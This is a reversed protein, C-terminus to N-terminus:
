ADEPEALLEGLTHKRLFAWRDSGRLVIRRVDRRGAVVLTVDKHGSAFARTCVADVTRDCAALAELWADWDEHSAARLLSDDYFLVNGAPMLADVRPDLLASPAVGAALAWGRVIADDTVIADFPRKPLPQWAGGGHLWLGNITPRGSSDRRENIPHQHWDMQIETLLKRWRAADAGAPLVIDVSRGLAADLAVTAISWPPDFSLFWNTTAIVRLTAGFGTALTAADAALTTSEEPTISFDGHLPTVLMHDRAFAFHVPDAHWLPTETDVDTASARNLARWAYPASVPEATGGFERWLWHRHAAGDPAVRELAAASARRVRREIAPANARALLRSAISAPVLAGPLVVFVSM